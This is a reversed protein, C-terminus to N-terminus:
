PLRASRRGAATTSRPWGPSRNTFSRGTGGLSLPSEFVATFSTLVDHERVVLGSQNKWLTVHLVGELTITVPVGCQDSMFPASFSDHVPITLQEPPAARAGGAGVASAVVAALLALKRM